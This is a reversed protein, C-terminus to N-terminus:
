AKAKLKTKLISLLTNNNIPKQFVGTLGLESFDTSINLSDGVSSLMYIPAKNGIAQLEKVFNTGADVEEMMLDVIVLDPKTQKYIHLGEECSSAEVYKYGNKELVIQLTYRIDPDDDVCLIVYKGEQM